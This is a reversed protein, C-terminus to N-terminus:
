IILKETRNEIVWHANNLSKLVVMEEANELTVYYHSSGDKVEQYLSTVWHDNLNMKLSTLLCAPLQDSLMNHSVAALAADKTYYATMVQGQIYFTAIVYDQNKQWSVEKAGSFVKNFSSTFKKGPGTGDGAFSAWATSLILAGILITKKM